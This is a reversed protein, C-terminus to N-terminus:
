RARTMRIGIVIYRALENSINLFWIFLTHRYIYMYVVLAWEKKRYLLSNWVIEDAM